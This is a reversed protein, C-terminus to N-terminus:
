KQNQIIAELQEIRTMADELLRALHNVTSSLSDMAEHNRHQIDADWECNKEAFRTKTEWNDLYVQHAAKSVLEAYSPKFDNM